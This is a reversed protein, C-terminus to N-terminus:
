KKEDNDGRMRESFELIAEYIRKGNNTDNYAFFDEIRKEYKDEIKCDNKMYNVLSKIIEEHTTCIEGFGMTKYKLAGEEFRPPLQKHHYYIIPKHMYAFDYQVGSYDTVMLSSKSLIDHYCIDNTAQLFEVYDNKDYDDIQASMAPHLLFIIKYNYKKACAILDKDNILSNYIKYYASNKFDENYGKPNNFNSTGSVSRRWTPTILIKRQDNSIMVDFRAMGTLAIQDKSYGYVPKLLHEVEYKSSTTYFMTNDYLRNQVEANKQMTLGHAICIINANYLNRFANGLNKGYGCMRLIDPHTAVINEAYLTFLKHKLSNFKLIKIGNKALRPLDYSDKNIVYYHNINDNLKSSYNIAFEGNDDAKYLKDFYLWIRKNQYFPKLIWYITRLFVNKIKFTNRSYLILDKYYLLENKLHKLSSNKEVILVNNKYKMSIGKYCWYSDPYLNSLRSGPKTFKLPINEKKKDLDLIFEIEQKEDNIPIEFQFTYKKAVSKAFYKTLSYIDTKTIPIEKKNVLVKICDKKYDYLQIYEFHADITLTKNYYNIADIKISDSKIYTKFQNNYLSYLRNDDKHIEYKQVKDKLCLMLYKYGYNQKAIYDLDDLNDFFDKDFYEFLKSISSYFEDVEDGQLVEKNIGNKNSDIKNFISIYMLRQQYKTLKNAKAFPIYIKEITNTYFNKNYLDHQLWKKKPINIYTNRITYIKEENTAINLLLEIGTESDCFDIINDINNIKEKAIVYSNISNNSLISKNLDIFKNHKDIKINNPDEPVYYMQKNLNKYNNVHFINSDITQITKVIKNITNHKLETQTNAINIFKTDLKKVGIKICEKLTANEKDILIINDNDYKKIYDKITPSNITNIIVIKINKKAQKLFIKLNTQYDEENLIYIIGLM